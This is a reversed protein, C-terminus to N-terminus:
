RGRDQLARALQARNSIGLKRYTRGLHTEVTKISLHLTSAIEANRLGEAALEGVRLESQTLESASSAHRGSIRATEDDITSLLGAAGSPAVLARAEALVERARSRRGTRRLLTGLSVLSRGAELPIHLQTFARAAAVFEAEATEDDHQAQSIHARSNSVAAKGFRSRLATSNRDLRACIRNAAALDGAVCAAEVALPLVPPHSPEHYGTSNLFEVTVGLLPWADRTRGTLILRLGLAYDIEAQARDSESLLLARAQEIQDDVREFEGLWVLALAIRAHAVPNPGDALAADTFTSLALSPNGTRCALLGPFYSYYNLEGHRAAALSAERLLGEADEHRDDLVAESGACGIAQHSSQIVAGPDANREREVDVARSLLSGDDPMAACRKLSANTAVLSPWESAPDPAAALASDILRIAGLLDGRDHMAYATLGVIAGYDPLPLDEISAAERLMAISADVDSLSSAICVLASARMRPSDADPLAERGLAGARVMHGLAYELNALVMVRHPPRTSGPTMQLALEALAAAGHCDGRDRALMVADDLENAVDDSPDSSRARHVAVVIPDHLSLAARRHALRIAAAPASELVAAGLLPHAFRLRLNEQILLGARRANAVADPDFDGPAGSGRVAIDLLLNETQTDLGRLRRALLGGITEPLGDAALQHGAGQLALERAFFPNGGSLDAIQATRDGPSELGVLQQVLLRVSDTPLGPVPVTVANSFGRSFGSRTSTLVAVDPKTSRHFAFDFTLLSTADCWQVDDIGIVVRGRQSLLDLLSLTTAGLLRSDVTGQLDGDYRFLVLDVARRQPPPLADVISQPVAQYFDALVAEGLDAEAELCQASWSWSAPTKALVEMWVTTKGIGPEGTLSVVRDGRRVLETVTAILDARGIVGPGSSSV